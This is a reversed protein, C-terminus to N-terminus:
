GFISSTGKNVKPWKTGYTYCQNLLHFNADQDAPMLSVKQDMSYVMQVSDSQVHRYIGINDDFLEATCSFYLRVDSDTQRAENFLSSLSYYDVYSATTINLDHHM